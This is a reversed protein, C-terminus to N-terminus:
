YKTDYYPGLIILPIMGDFEDAVHDATTPSVRGSRNASPAAIPHGLTAILRRAVTHAPSRIAITAGGARALDAINGRPDYPVIMTLAGPWFAEVLDRAKDMVDYMAAVAKGLAARDRPNPCFSVLEDVLAETAAGIPDGHMARGFDEDSVGREDAQPQVAAYVVDCLLEPDRILKAVVGAGDDALLDVGTLSRIRKIATTHLEITWERGATDTFTKM